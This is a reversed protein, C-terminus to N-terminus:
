RRSKEGSLVEPLSFDGSSCAGMSATRLVTHSSIRARLVPEELVLVIVTLRHAAGYLRTQHRAARCQVVEDLVFRLPSVSM